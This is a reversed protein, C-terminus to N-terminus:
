AVVCCGDSKAQAQQQQRMAPGANPAPGRGTNQSALGYARDLSQMDIWKAMVRTVPNWVVGERENLGSVAAYFGAWDAEPHPISQIPVGFRVHCPLVLCLLSIANNPTTDLVTRCLSRCLLILFHCFPHLSLSSLSSSSPHLVTLSFSSTGCSVLHRVIPQHPQAHQGRQTEERRNFRIRQHSSRVRPNTSAARRLQVLPQAQSDTLLCHCCLCRCHRTLRFCSTLLLSFFYSRYCIPACHGACQSDTSKVRM